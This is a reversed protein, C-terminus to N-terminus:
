ACPHRNSLSCDSRCCAANVAVSAPCLADLIYNGLNAAYGNDTRVSEVIEDVARIATQLEPEDRDLPIPRWEYDPEDFDSDQVELREREKAVQDLADNLWSRKGKDGLTGYRQFIALLDRNNVM